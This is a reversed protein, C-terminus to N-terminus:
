KILSRVEQPDTATSLYLALTRIAARYILNQSLPRGTLEAFRKRSTAALSATAADQYLQIPRTDTRPLRLVRESKPTKAQYEAICATCVSNSTYRPAHHGNACPESVSFINHGAAWAVARAESIVSRTPRVM